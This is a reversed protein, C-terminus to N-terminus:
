GRGTTRPQGIEIALHRRLWGAVQAVTPERLLSYHDGEFERVTLLHEAVLHRWAESRRTHVRPRVLTVPLASPPPRYSSQARHNARFTAFRRELEDMAMGGPVAGSSALWQQVRALRQPHSLTTLEAMAGRDLSAGLSAAVDRVLLLTLEADSPAQQSDRPVVTDILIVGEVRGGAAALRQAMEYAVLGGMSWGALLLPNDDPYVTRMAALHCEALAPVSEPPTAGTALGASEVGVVSYASMHRALAAYCGATGSIPHVCILAPAAPVENFRVLSPLPARPAAPPALEICAALAAPTPHSFLRAVPLDVGFADAVEGAVRTALLSHGGLEFFNDHRSVKDVGLLRSWIAALRREAPSRPAEGRTVSAPVTTPLASVDLKGHRSLPLTELVMVAAPVMHEPLRERLFARLSEQDPRDHGNDPRATVYGILTPTGAVESARVVAERVGPHTRLIAAIEGPEVRNGRIKVQDDARGLFTITGDPRLRARDGTRYMRGGPERSYPDAVLQAATQAARNVYGRAVQVGGICLEGAVLPPALQGTDDLVYIDTGALPSGLPTTGAANGTPRVPHVLVGVTAETPGYHNYVACGPRMASLEQAWAHSSAEGGIMLWRAPMLDTAKGARQLAELHSPAIKLYDIQESQVLQALAAADLGLERPVPVLTGGHFWAGHLMTVSSDVGLPQVMAYRGPALGAVEDIGALYSLVNGHTVAVGKPEGTSGSTYLVYALDSGTVPVPEDDTGPEGLLAALDVTLTTTVPGLDVEPPSNALLMRPAADALLSAIRRSPLTPDVPVYGAGAKLTALVAVAMAASRDIAIAILDGRATGAGRLRGSLADSARDLEQYSLRGDPASVALADPTERAQLRFRDHLSTAPLPVAPQGRRVALAEERQAPRSLPLDDIRLAPDAAVAELIAVYHRGIREIDSRDFLEKRYGWGLKIGNQETSVNLQLDLKTASTDFRVPETHLGEIQLPAVPANQMGFLVQTFPNALTRPPGLENVVQDFSVEQNSYADIATNRTRALLELFGPNGHLDVRLILTNVFLGILDEVDASTRGAVPSAVALDHAGTYRRLLVLFASLYTMSPTARNTRSLENLRHQLERPLGIDVRSGQWHPEAPRPRSGALETDPLDRLQRRWYELQRATRPSGAEKRQRVAFDTYQLSLPALAAAERRVYADYCTRLEQRFIGWSWADFVIHHFTLLLMHEDRGLRLLSTRFVDGSSLDLLMDRAQRMSREVERQQQPAPRGSLDTLPM